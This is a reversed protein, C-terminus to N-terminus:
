NRDQQYRGVADTTQETVDPSDDAAGPGLNFISPEQLTKPFHARSSCGSLQMAEMDFHIDNDDMAQCKKELKM